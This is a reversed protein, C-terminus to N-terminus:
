KINGRMWLCIIVTRLGGSLDWFPLSGLDTFLFGLRFKKQTMLFQDVNQM